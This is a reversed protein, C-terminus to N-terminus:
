KTESSFAEKFHTWTQSMEDSFHDLTSSAKAKNEYFKSQMNEIKNHLELKKEQWEQEKNESWLTIQLKFLEFRMKFKEVDMKSQEAFEKVTGNSKKHLESLANNFNHIKLNLDKQQEIITETAEAKGLTAQVKLDDFSTRIEKLSSKGSKQLESLKVDTKALWNNLNVKQTEYEGEAESLHLSLQKKVDTYISKWGDSTTRKKIMIEEM